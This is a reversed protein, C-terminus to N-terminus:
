PITLRHIHEAFAPFAATLVGRSGAEFDAFEFGPAMATGLLAVRGGAKLASGAWVGRPVLLQPRQGGLVDSGLTVVTGRGAMADLLLLEVPDGLYFHYVEDGPLRHLASFTEPTLLYYIATAASRDSTYRPALAAAPLRLDSRYTERYYGGEVPLPKLDLAAILEEATPTV